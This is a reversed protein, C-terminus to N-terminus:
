ELLKIQQAMNKVMTLLANSNNHTLEYANNDMEMGMGTEMEMAMETDIDM